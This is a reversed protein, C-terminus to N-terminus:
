WKPFHMTPIVIKITKSHDILVSAQVQLQCMDSYSWSNEEM